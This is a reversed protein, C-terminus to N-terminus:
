GVPVVRGAGGKEDCLAPTECFENPLPSLTFNM